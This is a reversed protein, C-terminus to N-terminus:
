AVQGMAQRDQERRPHPQLDLARDRAPAHDKVEKDPGVSHKKGAMRKEGPLRIDFKLYKEDSLFKRFTAPDTKSAAADDLIKRLEAPAARSVSTTGGVLADLRAKEAASLKGYGETKKLDALEDKRQLLRVVQANGISRQLSLVMGVPTREPEAAPDVHRDAADV